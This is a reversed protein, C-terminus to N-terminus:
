AQGTRTTIDATNMVVEVWNNSQAPDYSPSIAPGSQLVSPYGVIGVIRFPLTNTNAVSAINLSCTSMGALTPAGSSGATIDINQGVMAQTAPGGSVQAQFAMMPDNEIYAEVLTGATMGTLGPWQNNWTVKQGAPDFYKCGRFVGHVTGGGAAYLRITGDNALYVPDGNAIKTAYNLAIFARPGGFNSPRSDYPRGSMLGIPALVNPM